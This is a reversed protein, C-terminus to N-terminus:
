RRAQAAQAAAQMEAISLTGDKNADVAAFRALAPARSEELSIKGDKNTDLQAVEKSPDYDPAKEAKIPAQFEDKSLMGDNNADLKAFVAENRQLTAAKRAEFIKVQAAKIEAVDTFGDNNTDVAAFRKDWNEIFATKTVPQPAQQAPQAQEQALAPSAALSAILLFRFM